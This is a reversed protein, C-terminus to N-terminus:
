RDDCGAYELSGRLPDDVFGRFTLRGKCLEEGDRFERIRWVGRMTKVPMAAACMRSFTLIHPAHSVDIWIDVQCSYCPRIIAKGHALAGPM